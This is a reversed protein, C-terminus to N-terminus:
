CHFVGFAQESIALSDNKTPSHKFFSVSALDNLSRRRQLQPARSVSNEDAQATFISTSSATSSPKEQREAEVDRVRNNYHSNLVNLDSKTSDVEQTLEAAKDADLGLWRGVLNEIGGRQLFWFSAFSAAGGIFSVLLVAWIPLAVPGLVLTVAATMAAQAGFFGGTFFMVGIMLALPLKFVKLLPNHVKKSYAEQQGNLVDRRDQLMRVMLQVDQLQQPTIRKASGVKLAEILLKVQEVEEVLTDLRSRFNIGKVDLNKSIEVADFGNYVVVALGAFFLGVLLVVSPPMAAVFGLLAPVGNFGDCAAAFVGGLFLFPFLGNRLWRKAKAWVQKLRSLKSPSTNTEEAELPNFLSNKVYDNLDRLLEVRLKVHAKKRNNQLQIHLSQLRPELDRSDAAPTSLLEIVARPELTQIDEYTKDFKRLLRKTKTSLTIM